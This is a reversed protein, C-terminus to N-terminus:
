FLTRYYKGTKLSKVNVFQYVEDENYLCTKVTAWYPEDVIVFRAYKEDGICYAACIFASKGTELNICWSNDRPYFIDGIKVKRKEYLFGLTTGYKNHYNFVYRPLNTRTYVSEMSLPFEPGYKSIQNM